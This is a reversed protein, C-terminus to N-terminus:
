KEPKSQNFNDAIEKLKSLMTASRQNNGVQYADGSAGRGYRDVLYDGLYGLGGGLAAGRGATGLRGKTGWTPRTSNMGLSRLTKIHDKTLPNIASEPIAKKLNAAAAARSAAIQKEASLLGTHSKVKLDALDQMQKNRNLIADPEDADEVISSANEIFHKRNMTDEAARARNGILGPMAEQIDAVRKNADDFSKEAATWAGKASTNKGADEMQRALVKDVEANQLKRSPGLAKAKGAIEQATEIVSPPVMYANVPLKAADIGAQLAGRRRSNYGLGLNAAAGVGAGLGVSGDMGSQIREGTWNLANGIYDTEKRDLNYSDRVANPDASQTALHHLGGIGAGAAGGALAGTLAANIPSKRRSPGLLLGGAAGVGAGIGGGALAARAGPNLGAWAAQIDKIGFARKVRACRAAILTRALGDSIEAVENKSLM